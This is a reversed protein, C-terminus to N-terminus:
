TDRHELFYGRLELTRLMKDTTRSEQEFFSRGTSLQRFASPFAFLRRDINTLFLHYEFPHFREKAASRTDAVLDLSTFLSELARVAAVFGTSRHLQATGYIHLEGTSWVGEPLRYPLFLAGGISADRDIRGGSSIIPAFAPFTVLFQRRESYRRMDSCPSSPTIRGGHQEICDLIPIFEDDISLWYFTKPM